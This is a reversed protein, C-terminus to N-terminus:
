FAEDLQRRQSPSLWEVAKERDNPALANIKTAQMKSLSELQKVQPWNDLQKKQDSASAPRYKEMKLTKSEFRNRDVREGPLTYVRQACRVSAARKALEDLSIRQKHYTVLTIERNDYWGAQTAVVGDINGLEYEGTWFCAMAFGVQGHNETDYEYMLASLYRPVPQGLERLVEVMRSAVGGITWIRDKRPIIDSGDGRLFRIVQYNWAPENYRKLWQEDVGGSRNNYVLVPIFLTEIAEVLLPNTLVESGFTQCGICGPIEQFLVLVPTQTARSKTLAADLDRQWRVDGVEVPNKLEFTENNTLAVASNIWFLLLVVLCVQLCIKDYGNLM